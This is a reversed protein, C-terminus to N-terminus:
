KIKEKSLIKVKGQFLYEARKEEIDETFIPNWYKETYEYMEDNTLIDDPIFMDSSKFLNGTVEVKFLNFYDRKNLEKLWFELSKEDALWISHYRSPLNPYYNLRYEEIIKERRSLNSNKIICRAENMMRLALEKDITKFKDEDMYDDIIRDFSIRKVEDNNGKSYVAPSFKKVVECLNSNFKDSITLINGVQWINKFRDTNQIHYMTKNKVEM